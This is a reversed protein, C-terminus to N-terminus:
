MYVARITVCAGMLGTADCRAFEDRDDTIEWHSFSLDGPPETMAYDELGDIANREEETLDADGYFIWPILYEGVQYTVTQTDM